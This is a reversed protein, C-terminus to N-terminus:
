EFRARAFANEGKRWVLLSEGLVVLDVMGDELAGLADQPACVIPEEHRNSPPTLLAPRAGRPQCPPLLAPVYPDPRRRPIRPRA